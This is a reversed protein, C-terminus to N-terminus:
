CDLRCTRDSLRKLGYALTQPKTGQIHAYGGESQQWEERERILTKEAESLEQAELGLYPTPRTVSTLHIGIMSDAHGHGLRSTVGAGIDGGHAAFRPYGLGNMLEVWLAATKQVEM